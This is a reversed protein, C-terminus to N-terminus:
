GRRPFWGVSGGGSSFIANAGGAWFDDFCGM